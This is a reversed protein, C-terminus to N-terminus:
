LKEGLVHTWEGKDLYSLDIIKIGAQSLAYNIEEESFYSFLRPADMKTNVVEEKDGTKLSFALIGGKRLIKSIRKIVDPFSKKSSHLLTANAYVGDFYNLWEERPEERFDFYEAKFGRSRLDELADEMIDTCLIEYGKSKIFNADRGTASGIEFINGGSPMHNLFENIWWELDGYIDGRTLDKYKDFGKKYTDVTLNEEEM